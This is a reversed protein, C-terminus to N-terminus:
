AKGASARPLDFMRGWQEAVGTGRTDVGIKRLLGWVVASISDLLIPDRGQYERELLPTLRAASLNTCFVMVFRLDESAALVERVMSSVQEDSVEGIENNDTIGLCQDHDAIAIGAGAFTKKIAANMEPIYPTVLGVPPDGLGHLLEVLALTATSAPIGVEAEIAECLATDTELGLWGASTGGWSIADVKADALLSVARMITPLDFQSHATADLSIQTVRFRSFHATIHLSPITNNITHLMATILPEMATNSSPVLIGLRITRTSM